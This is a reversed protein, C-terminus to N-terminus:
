PYSVTTNVPHMVPNNLKVSCAKHGYKHCTDTLGVAMLAFLGSVKAKQQRSRLFVIKGDKSLTIGHWLWDSVM